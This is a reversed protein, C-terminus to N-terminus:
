EKKGKAEIAATLKHFSEVLADNRIKSDNKARAERADMDKNLREFGDKLAALVENRQDLVALHAIRSEKLDAELTETRKRAEVTAADWREVLKPWLKTILFWVIVGLIVLPVGLRLIDDVTLTPM